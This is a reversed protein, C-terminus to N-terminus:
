LPLIGYKVKNVGKLVKIEDRLQEQPIALVSLDFYGEYFCNDQTFCLGSSYHTKVKNKMFIMALRQLFDPSLDSIEITLKIVEPNKTPIIQLIKSSPVLIMIAYEGDSTTSISDLFESPLFIPEPEYLQIMKAITVAL